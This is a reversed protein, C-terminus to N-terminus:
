NVIRFCPEYQSGGPLKMRNQKVMNSLLAEMPAIIKNDGHIEFPGFERVALIGDQKVNGAVIGSFARRLNAALIHIEQDLSLNLRSMNEHSPIFPTQFEKDITLMWNYFFADNNEKRFSTVKKINDRLYVAM